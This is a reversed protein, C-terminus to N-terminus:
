QTIEAKKKLGEILDFQKQQILNTRIANKTEDFSPAKFPRTEDVKIIYWGNPTQIPSSSLTGKPLNAMVLAIAPNVQSPLVWPTQGGQDKNPDISKQKAVQAFAAGSKIKAITAAAEAETPLAIVSLKYQELARGTGLNQIQRDYEARVAEDTIPNKEFYNAIFLEALLNKQVERLRIENEPTKNIGESVAAQSLLEIGILRQKVNNEIAPNPQQGSSVTDKLALDYVARSIKVGNVTAISEASQAFCMVSLLSWTLTTGVLVLRNKIM